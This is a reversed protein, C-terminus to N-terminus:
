DIFSRVGLKNYSVLCVIFYYTVKPCSLMYTQDFVFILILNIYIEKPQIKCIFMKLVIYEQLLVNFFALDDYYQIQLPRTQQLCFSYKTHVDTIIVLLILLNVLGLMSLQKLKNASIM